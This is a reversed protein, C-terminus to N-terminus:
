HLLYYLRLIGIHAIDSFLPSSLCMLATYSNWHACHRFFSSQLPVNFCHMILYFVMSTFLSDNPPPFINVQVIIWSVLHWWHLYVARELILRIFRPFTTWKYSFSAIIVKIRIELRTPTFCFITNLKFVLFNNELSEFLWFVFFFQNELLRRWM